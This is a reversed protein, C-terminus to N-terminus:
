CKELWEKTIRFLNEARSYYSKIEKWFPDEVALVVECNGIQMQLKKNPESIETEKRNVQVLLTRGPYPNPQALLDIKTSQDYLPWSMEYGDVNVTKGEKMMKILAKSNYRIEKYVATQTSLNIRLMERMYSMGNIILEWLILKNITEEQGAAMAALTAGFRLGLLNVSECDQVGERLTRVACHIDSLMTEVSSEEFDGDSDGNGMYDFRLVPYGLDALDRAFNVFVRHTWLKEEAFPSCFVFGEKKAQGVPEHLVGFLQYNKNPFFFPTENM